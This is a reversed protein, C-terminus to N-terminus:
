LHFANGFSCADIQAPGGARNRRQLAVIECAHRCLRSVDLIGEGAALRADDYGRRQDDDGQQHQNEDDNRHVLRRPASTRIATSAPRTSAWGAGRAMRSTGKMEWDSASHPPAAAAM